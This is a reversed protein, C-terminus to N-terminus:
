DFTPSAGKLIEFREMRKTNRYQKKIDYINGPGEGFLLKLYIYFVILFKRIPVVAIELSYKISRFCM